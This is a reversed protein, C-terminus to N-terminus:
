GGLRLAQIRLSSEGPNVGTVERRLQDVRVSDGSVEQLLTVVRAIAEHREYQPLGFCAFEFSQAALRLRFEATQLAKRRLMLRWLLRHSFFLVLRWSSWVVGPDVAVQLHHDLFRRELWCDVTKRCFLRHPGAQQRGLVALCDDLLQFPRQNWVFLVPLEFEQKLLVAVGVVRFSAEKSVASKVLACDFM